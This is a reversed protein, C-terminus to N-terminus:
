QISGLALARTRVLRQLEATPRFPDAVIRGSALELAVCVEDAVEALMVEGEPPATSDLAALRALAATNNREATRILVPERRFRESRRHLDAINLRLLDHQLYSASM